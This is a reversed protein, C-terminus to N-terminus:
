SGTQGIYLELRVQLSVPVMTIMSFGLGSVTSIDDVVLYKQSQCVQELTQFGTRLSDPSQTAAIVDALNVWSTQRHTKVLDVVTRPLQQSTVAATVNSNPWTPCGNNSCGPRSSASHSVHQKTHSFSLERSSFMVFFGVAIACYVALGVVFAQPVTPRSGKNSM